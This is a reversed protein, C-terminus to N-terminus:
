GRSVRSSKPSGTKGCPQESDAHPESASRHPDAHPESVSRCSLGKFFSVLSPDCPPAPECGPAARDNRGGSESYDSTMFVPQECELVYRRFGKAIRTLTNPALPRVIQRRTAKTYVRAEEKTVLISPCPLSWDIIEAATMWPKLKGARVGPSTPAGHTPKPWVIPEGDRRMIIYLRKRITPAGYDCARLVRWEVRYGAKKFRALWERFTEGSRQPDPIDDGKPGIMTPGWTMFEEVNELIIIRPHVQEAWHGISWALGRVKKSVPTSGKARSFHRCDPSAWLLGVPRGATTALPDVTWIDSEMHLTGPHNAAHMALAPGNHNIAIDVSPDEFGLAQLALEIGTSAGGGGAFSDIIMEPM